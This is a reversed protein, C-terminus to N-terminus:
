DIQDAFFFILFMGNKSIYKFLLLKRFHNHAFSYFYNIERELKNRALIVLFVGPYFMEHFNVTITVTNKIFMNSFGSSYLRCM